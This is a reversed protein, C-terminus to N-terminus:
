GGELERGFSPSGSLADRDLRSRPVRKDVRGRDRGFSPPDTLAVRRSTLPDANKIQAHDGSKLNACQSCRDGDFCGIERGCRLPASPGQVSAKFKAALSFMRHTRNATNQKTLM